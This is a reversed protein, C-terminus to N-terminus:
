PAAGGTQAHATLVEGEGKAIAAATRGRRRLWRELYTAFWSLLLCMAIYIIAIVIAVPIIPSDLQIQSGILRGQYLLEQYQIIFGLATDKLLVVLQSIVTPLMAALAQPLLVSMMVQTKRMGLAYAAESQGRPVALVGARFVEALVSGNYLMLGIVVAVFANAGMGFYLLFILILLPIARFFEVIAAAPARVWAHDSLRAAAFVAGFALALVAGVAFAQLTALLGSLLILQINEYTIWDWQEATFLGSEAFRFAAYGLVAVALLVGAVALARNTARARPGPIDYLTSTV